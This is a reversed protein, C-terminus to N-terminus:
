PQFSNSNDWKSEFIRLFLLVPYLCLLSKAKREKRGFGLGMIKKVM